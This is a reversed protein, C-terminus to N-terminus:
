PIRKLTGELTALAQEADQERYASLYIDSLAVEEASDGEDSLYATLGALMSQVVEHADAGGQGTGFLPFLLSRCPTEGTSARAEQQSRQETAPPSVIGRAANVEVLKALASRVCAEIQHPEKFPVVIGQADVAQVAAVHFIYRTRNVRVLDCNPGGSSTAFVEAVQVPRGRDRLQWDLEQQITDEYRGDRIRAGRRRLMSSVTRTEFFRAMQMYDNESNVIADIDRFRMLDGTALHLSIGSRRSPLIFSAARQNDSAKRVPPSRRDLLERLTEKQSERTRAAAATLDTRIEALLAERANLRINQTLRAQLHGIDLEKLQNDLDTRTLDFGIPLISIGLSDRLLDHSVRQHRTCRTTFGLKTV